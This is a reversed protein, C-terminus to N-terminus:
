SHPVEQSTGRSSGVEYRVEILHFAILIVFVFVLAILGILAVGILRNHHRRATPTARLIHAHLATFKKV